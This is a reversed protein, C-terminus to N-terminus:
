HGLTKGFGIEVSMGPGTCVSHSEGGCREVSALWRAQKRCCVERWREAGRERWSGRHHEHGGAGSRVARHRRRASVRDRALTGCDAGLHENWDGQVAGSRGDDNEDGSRLSGHVGDDSGAVDKPELFMFDVHFVKMPQDDKKARHRPAQMGRGQVCEKCWSQFPLHTLEHEEIEENTPQTPAAVQVPSRSGAEADDEVTVEANDIVAELHPRVTHERLGQPLVQTSREEPIEPAWLEWARKVGVPHFGVFQQSRGGSESRPVARDQPGLKQRWTGNAACMRLGKRKPM